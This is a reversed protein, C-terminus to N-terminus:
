SPIFSIRYNDNWTAVNMATFRIARIKSLLKRELPPNNLESSVISVTSVTGDALIIIKFIVEGHMNPNKRLERNYLTFFSSKNRDMYKEIDEAPREAQGGGNASRSQKIKAAALNSSVQRSGGGELGAGGMNTSAKGIKVGGSSKKANNVIMDREVTTAKGVDSSLDNHNAIRKSTSSDRLDAFVDFVALNQKAKERADERNGQPKVAVIEQQKPKEIVTKEIPKEKKEPEKIKEEIEVIKPPPPTIIIKKKQELVLKVFREPIEARTRPAKDKLMTSAVLWSFLLTILLLASLILWYNREDKGDNDWPLQPEIAMYNM